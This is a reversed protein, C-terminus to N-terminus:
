TDGFSVGGGDSSSTTSREDDRCGRTTRPSTCSDQTPCSITTRVDQFSVLIRYFVYIREFFRGGGDDLIDRTNGLFPITQNEHM